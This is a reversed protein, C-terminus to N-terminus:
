PSTAMSQIKWGGEEKALKVFRVNRGNTYPTATGQAVDVTFNLQVRVETATNDIMESSQFFWNSVGPIKLSDPKIGAKPSWYGAAKAYDGQNLAEFYAQLVKRAAVDVEGASVTETAPSGPPPNSVTGSPTPNVQGSTPKAENQAPPAQESTKPPEQKACAALFVALLLAAVLAALQTRKMLPVETPSETRTM